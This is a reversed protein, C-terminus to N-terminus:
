ELFRLDFGEFTRRPERRYCQRLQRIQSHQNHQRLRFRSGTTYVSRLNLLFRSILISQISLPNLEILTGSLEYYVKRMLSVLCTM